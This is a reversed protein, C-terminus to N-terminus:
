WRPALAPWTMANRIALGQFEMESVKMRTPSMPRPQVRAKMTRDSTTAM